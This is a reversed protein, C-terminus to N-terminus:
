KRHKLTALTHVSGCHVQVVKHTGTLTYSVLALLYVSFLSTASGTGCGGELRGGGAPVQVAPHRWVLM